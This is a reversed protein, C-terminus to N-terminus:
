RASASASGAPGAPSKRAVKLLEAVTQQGPFSSGLKALETLEGEALGNKGAKLYLRALTLRLLSNKPELGIARKQLEIARQHQGDASLLYALTDMISPENPSVKDARQAFELGGPKNERYLTMALNNLAIAHDPTAQIADRYYKEAHELDQRLLAADGLSALFSGDKPQKKLWDEAFKDAEARRDASLLASYVRSAGASSPEVALATQYAKLAAPLNRQALQVDGELLYGPRAKPQRRQLEKAAALAEPYHRAAVELEVLREYARLSDPALALARKLSQKAGDGNGNARQAEALAFFAQPSNPQAASLRTFTTLSQNLEGAKFQAQGLAEQIEPSDPLAAAANRAADLAKPANKAQLYHEVLRVRPKPDAGDAKIAAEILKVRDAEPADMRTLVQEQALLAQVNNPDAALLATFRRKADELHNDALDMAALNAAAPYYSARIALAKEFSARAAAKDGKMLLARGRLNAAFPEKPQKKEIVDIAALAPEFKGNTLHAIAIALDAQSGKDVASIAALEALGKDVEGRQIEATALATRSHVDDPNLKVARGYFKAAQAFQGKALYAEGALPLSLGDNAALLPQLTNLAGDADGGTLLAQALLRRAIPRQPSSQVAKALFARAQAPAGLRLETAGALELAPVYDPARRLVQQLGARAAAFNERRYALRAEFFLTQPHKAAAAKMKTLQAAVADLDGKVFLLNLADSHADLNTPDLEVAKRYATLAAEADPNIARAFDGKLKWVSADEPHKELLEALGKQAALVDQKGMSLRLRMVQAPVYDPQAQLAADLAAEAEPALGQLAYASAVSTKLDARASASQLETNGFTDILGILKGQRLLARALSPAVQEEPHKLELAKRLEVEAAGPDGSALLAEGFLYRGAASQPAAQLASKIAVIAASNDHKALLQRAKDLQAEPSPEFCGALLLSALLVPALRKPM